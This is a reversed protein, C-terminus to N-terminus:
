KRNPIAAGGSICLRIGEEVTISTEILDGKPVFVFFGTAPNPPSPLFVSTLEKGLKETLAWPKEQTVFGMAYVGPRPYELFVVRKFLGGSQDGLIAHSIDRFSRYVKNFVPINTLLSEGSELIRRFIFRQAAMGLLTVFFIVVFAIIIKTLWMRSQMDVDGPLLRFVPNVVFTDALRVLYGIFLVTLFFPSLILLGSVFYTRLTKLM